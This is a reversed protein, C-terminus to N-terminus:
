VFAVICCIRQACNSKVHVFNMLCYILSWKYSRPENSHFRGMDCRAKNDVDKEKVLSAGHVMVFLFILFCVFLCFLVFFLFLVV